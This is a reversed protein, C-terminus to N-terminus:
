REVAAAALLRKAAATVDGLCCAGRPNRVECACRQAKIHARIRAVAETTGTREIENRMDAENEGFCYCVTRAGEPEKQWVAVRIDTTLYVGGDATFYVVPCGADACFAPESTTLRRMATERLLAKVTGLPVRTGRTRSHPCHPAEVRAGPAPCCCDPSDDAM